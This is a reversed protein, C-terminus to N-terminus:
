VHDKGFWDVAKEWKKDKLRVLYHKLKAFDWEFFEIKSGSTVEIKNKDMPNVKTM